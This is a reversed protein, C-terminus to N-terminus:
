KILGAKKLNKRARETKEKFPVIKGTKVNEIFSQLRALKDATLAKQNKKVLTPM